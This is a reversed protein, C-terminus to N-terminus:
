SWNNVKEWGNDTCIYLGKEYKDNTNCNYFGEVIIKKNVGSNFTYFKRIVEEEGTDPNLETEQEYELSLKQLLVIM